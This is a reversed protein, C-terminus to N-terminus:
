AYRLCMIKSICLIVKKKCLIVSALRKFGFSDYDVGNLAYYIDGKQTIGADTKHNSIDVNYRLLLM